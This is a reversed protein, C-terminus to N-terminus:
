IREFVGKAKQQCIINCQEWYRQVERRKWEERESETMVTFWLNDWFESFQWPWLYTQIIMQRNKKKYWRIVQRPDPKLEPYKSNQTHISTHCSEHVKIVKEPFYTLHHNIVTQGIEINLHCAQCEIPETAKLRKWYTM